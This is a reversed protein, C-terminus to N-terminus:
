FVQFLFLIRPSMMISHRRRDSLFISRDRWVDKIGIKLGTCPMTLYEYQQRKSDVDEKITTRVQSEVYLPVESCLRPIRRM